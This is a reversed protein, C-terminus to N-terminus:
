LKEFPFYKFGVDQSGESDWEITADSEFGMIEHDIEFGSASSAM